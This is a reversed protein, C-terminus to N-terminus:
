FFSEPVFVVDNPQLVVDKDKDGKQTIDSIRVKITNEKGDASKRIVRTGNQDAVKNFGGAMTIAEIVTTPKNLPLEIAGPKEVSGLVFVKRKQYEEVVINVRPNVLYDAELRKEIERKLEDITLGEARVTGILPFTLEGKTVRAKTTLDDQDYVTILLLDGTEIHYEESAAHAFAAAALLIIVTVARIAKRM